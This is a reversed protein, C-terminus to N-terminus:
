LANLIVIRIVGPMGNWSCVAFDQFLEKNERAAGDETVFCGDIMAQEASYREPLEELPILGTRVSGPLSFEGYVM